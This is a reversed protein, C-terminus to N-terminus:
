QTKAYFVAFTLARDILHQTLLIRYLADNDTEGDWRSVLAKYYHSSVRTPEDDLAPALSAATLLQAISRHISEAVQSDERRKRTQLFLGFAFLGQEALVHLARRTLTEAQAGAGQVMRHAAEATLPELNLLPMEAM